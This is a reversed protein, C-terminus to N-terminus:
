LLLISRSIDMVSIEFNSLNGYITYSLDKTFIKSGHIQIHNIFGFNSQFVGAINIERFIAFIRGGFKETRYRVNSCTMRGRRKELYEGVVCSDVM